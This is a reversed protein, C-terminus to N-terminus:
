IQNISLGTKESLEKMFEEMNILYDYILYPKNAEEVVNKVNWPEYGENKDMIEMRKRIGWLELRHFKINYEIKKIDSYNMTCSVIDAPTVQKFIPAWVNQLYEEKFVLTQNARAGLIDRGGSLTVARLIIAPLLFFIGVGIGLIVSFIVEEPYLTEQYLIVCLIITFIIDAFFYCFGLINTFKYRKYQKCVQKKLQKEKKLDVEYVTM